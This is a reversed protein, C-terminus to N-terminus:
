WRPGGAASAYPVLTALYEFAIDPAEDLVEAIDACIYVLKRDHGGAKLFPLARLVATAQEATPPELMRQYHTTHGFFLDGNNKPISSDHGTAAWLAVVHRVDASDALLGAIEPAAAEHFAEALDGVIYSAFSVLSSLPMDYFTARPIGFLDAFAHVSLSRM